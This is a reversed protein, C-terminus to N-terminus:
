DQIPQVVMYFPMEVIYGNIHEGEEEQEGTVNGSTSWTRMTGTQKNVIARGGM